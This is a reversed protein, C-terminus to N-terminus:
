GSTLVIDLRQNFRGPVGIPLDVGNDSVCLRYVGLEALAYWDVDLIVKGEDPALLGTERARQIAEISNQTLERYQQYDDCDAGFRKIIFYVNGVRM